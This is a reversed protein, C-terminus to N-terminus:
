KKLALYVDTQSLLGAEEHRARVLKEHKSGPLEVNM